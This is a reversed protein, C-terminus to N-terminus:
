MIFNLMKVTKEYIIVGPFFVIMKIGYNDTVKHM